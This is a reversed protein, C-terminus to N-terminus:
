GECGKTDKSEALFEHWWEISRDSIEVLRNLSNRVNILDREIRELLMTM